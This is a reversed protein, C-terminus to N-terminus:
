KFLAKGTASVHTNQPIQAPIYFPVGTGQAVSGSRDYLKNRSDADTINELQTKGLYGELISHLTVTKRETRVENAQNWLM